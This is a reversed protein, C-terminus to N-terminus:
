HPRTVTIILHRSKYFQGRCKISASPSTDLFSMGEKRLLQHTPSSKTSTLPRLNFVFFPIFHEVCKWVLHQKKSERRIKCYLNEKGGGGREKEGRGEERKEKGKGRQKGRREEKEKVRGREEGEGEGEKERERGGEGKNWEQTKNSQVHGM